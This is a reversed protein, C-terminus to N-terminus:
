PDQFFSNKSIDQFIRYAQFHRINCSIPFPPFHYNGRVITKRHQVFLDNIRNKILLHQIELYLYLPGQWSEAWEPSAGQAETKGAPVPASDPTLQPGEQEPVPPSFLCMELVRERGAKVVPIPVGCDIDANLFLCLASRYGKRVAGPFRGLGRGKQRFPIDQNQAGRPAAGKTRPPRPEVQERSPPDTRGLPRRAPSPVASDRPSSRSERRSGAQILDPSRTDGICTAGPAM